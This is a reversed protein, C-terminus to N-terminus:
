LVAARLFKAINEPFCRHQLRKKIINCAQLVTDFLSELVPTKRYINRFELSFRNQFVDAFPLKQLSKNKSFGFHRKGASTSLIFLLPILVDATSFFHQTSSFPQDSLSCLWFCHSTKFIMLIMRSKPQPAIHQTYYTYYSKELFHQM